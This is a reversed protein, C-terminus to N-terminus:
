SDVVQPYVHVPLRDLPGVIPAHFGRPHFHDSRRCGADRVINIILEIKNHIMQLASLLCRLAARREGVLKSAYQLPSGMSTLEVLGAAKRRVKTM